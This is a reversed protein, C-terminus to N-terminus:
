ATERALGELELWRGYLRGYATIMAKEDFEGLARQRNAEGLKTRLLRDSALEFLNESLREVNGSPSIYPLNEESVIHKVDGVDPASIPLGAAMGEVVSLPFQESDSSLAFIDFLGVAASPDAVFGPLHVRHAIGLEDATDRIAQREPGEGLIVLQWESPLPAFARVLRPLNKVERLGAVTGVWHEGKRKVVGRIADPKPKKAYARTPIGNPIRTVRGIPQQWDVLAIGELKESPVVLTATRGLAIRRFWNRTKKLKHIEDANFGDEHHVLPPLSLAQAFLTHAMVADMAGWNYTLILDFGQMAKAIKQLRGPTPKGKLSPFDKPFSVQISKDLRTAAEMRDAEASVVTHHLKNGFANMLRVARLEKGGANFTSHLHLVRPPGAEATKM